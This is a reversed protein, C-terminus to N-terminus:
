ATPEQMEGVQDNAVECIQGVQRKQRRKRGAQEQQLSGLVV